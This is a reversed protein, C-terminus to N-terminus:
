PRDYSSLGDHVITGRYGVLAGIAVIGDIGRKAHYALLTLGPTSVTHVWGLKTRVRVSTEDAYTVPCGALLARLRQLFGELREAADPLVGALTGEGMPAAFLVAMAEACRELPLHQRALLYAAVARARPGWCVPGT